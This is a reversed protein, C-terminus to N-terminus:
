MGCINNQSRMETVLETLSIGLISLKYGNTFTFSYYIKSALSNVKVPTIFVTFFTKYVESSLELRKFSPQGPPLPPPPNTTTEVNQRPIGSSQIPDGATARDTAASRTQTAFM